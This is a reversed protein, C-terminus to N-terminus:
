WVLKTIKKSGIEKQCLKKLLSAKAKAKRSNPDFDFKLEKELQKLLELNEFPQKDRYIIADELKENQKKFVFGM